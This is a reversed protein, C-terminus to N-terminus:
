KESMYRERLNIRKERFEEKIHYKRFYHQGSGAIGIFATIKGINDILNSGLEHGIYRMALGAVGIGFIGASVNIAKKFKRQEEDFLQDLDRLYREHKEM